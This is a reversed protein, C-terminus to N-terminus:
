TTCYRCQSEPVCADGAIRAALDRLKLRELLVQIPLKVVYEANTRNVLAVAIISNGGATFFEDEVFVSDYHLPRM